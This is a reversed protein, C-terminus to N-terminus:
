SEATFGTDKQVFVNACFAGSVQSLCRCNEARAIHQGRLDGSLLKECVSTLRPRYGRGVKENRLACAALRSSNRKGSVFQKTWVHNQITNPEFGGNCLYLQSLKPLNSSVSRKRIGQARWTEDRSGRATFDAPVDHSRNGLCVLLTMM